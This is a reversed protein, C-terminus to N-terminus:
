GALRGGAVAGGTMGPELPAGDAEAARDDRFALVSLAGAIVAWVLLRAVPLVVGRFVGVAVVGLDVAGATTAVM